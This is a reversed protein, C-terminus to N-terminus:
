SMGISATPGASWCSKKTAFASIIEELPNAHADTLARLRAHGRSILQDRLGPVTILSFLHEALCAPDNLDLRLAADGVQERMGPLDSYLVPVGLHFAELPPLNTPGFYTPMVLALSQKYFSRIEADPVFGPFMIREALGLEHATRKVYALNKMDTGTFAAGVKLGHRRELEALGKLAYVHNKHPWFQAPYFVFDGQIGYKQRIDVDASGNGSEDATTGAAPSFPMVFVREPDIGYRRVVNEKGLESDVFTAIAKPLARTFLADRIEFVRRHSVEPFEVHDRHALDWVTFIYSHHETMTALKSPSPFYLLDIGAKDLIRDFPNAGALRFWLRLLDHSLLRRLHLRIRTLRSLNMHQAPLGYARLVAINDKITTLFIPECVASSIRKIQLAANLSQQYGGGLAIRQELIVAVRIPQRSTGM